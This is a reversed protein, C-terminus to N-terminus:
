HDVTRKPSGFLLPREFRLGRTRNGGPASKSTRSKQLIDVRADPIPQGTEDLQRGSFCVLRALLVPSPQAPRGSRAGSWTAPSRIPATSVTLSDAFCTLRISRDPRWFRTETGSGLRSLTGPTDVAFVSYDARVM